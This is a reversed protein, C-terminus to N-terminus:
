RGFGIALGARLMFSFYSPKRNAVMKDEITFNTKNWVESNGGNFQNYAAGVGFYVDVGLNNLMMVGSNVMLSYQKNKPNFPKVVTKKDVTSTVNSNFPEFIRQGYGLLFGSYPKMKRTARNSSFKMAVHAMFGDWRHEPVGTIERLKLDYYNEKNKNVKLYSLEFMTKRTGYDLVAGLDAPKSFLPVVHIGVFFYGERAIRKREKALREEEKKREEERVIAETARKKRCTEAKKKMDDAKAEDGFQQYDKIFADWSNCDTEGIGVELRGLVELALAKNNTVRAVPLVENKYLITTGWNNKLAYIFFKAAKENENVGRLIKGVEGVKIGLSQINKGEDVLSNFIKYGQEWTALKRDSVVKKDDNSLETYAKMSKIAFDQYEDDSVLAKNKNRIDMLKHISTYKLWNTLNKNKLANKTVAYADEYKGLNYSAESMCTFYEAQVFVFNDWTIKANKGAYEYQIPFDTSKYASFNNEIAKYVEYSTKNDGKLGYMFGLEYQFNNNFYKVLKIQDVNGEKAVKDFLSIGREIRSKIEKVNESSVTTPVLKHSYERLANYIEVGKELNEKPTQALIITSFLSLCFALVISKKNMAKM